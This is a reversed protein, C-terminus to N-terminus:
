LEPLVDGHELFFLNFTLAAAKLCCAPFIADKQM